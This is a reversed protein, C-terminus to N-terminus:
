SRSRTAGGGTSLARGMWDESRGNNYEWCNDFFTVGGDIAEGVIRDAESFSAADIKSSSFQRRSRNM